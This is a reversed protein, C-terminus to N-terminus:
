LPIPIVFNRYVDKGEAPLTYPAPMTVVLDPQGLQWGENWKPLPPLDSPRGELAGETFWQQIIGIQDTTLRREDAFEVYGPAPMWPPMYRSATVEAIQRARKQVDSYTLLSFPAAQGPRHCSACQNFMIPAIDKSFTLSGKARPVYIDPKEKSCGALVLASLFWVLRKM